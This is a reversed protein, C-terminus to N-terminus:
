CVCVCVCVRGNMGGSVAMVAMKVKCILANLNWSTVSIRLLSSTLLPQIQVLAESAMGHERQSKVLIDSVFSQKQKHCFTVAVHSM